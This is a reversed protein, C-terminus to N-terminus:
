QKVREQIDRISHCGRTNYVQVVNQVGKHQFHESLVDIGEQASEAFFLNYSDSLVTRFIFHVVKEDDIVLINKPAM